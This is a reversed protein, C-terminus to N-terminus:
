LGAARLREVIDAKELCGEISVNQERALAKLEKISRQTLPREDVSAAPASASSAAAAAAGPSGGGNSAASDGESRLEESVLIAGSMCLRALLKEKDNECGSTDVGLREMISRVEGISMADLQSPSFTQAPGAALTKGSEDKLEAEIMEVRPSALIREIIDSKELCGKVDVGIFSALGSLEQASKMDLDPKRMRIKRGEMRSERGREHERDDTPLEFRCVPCANSKKQLWDKICDEHFLHSCPLRIASKGAELTDLCIPCESSNENAVIDYATVKVIPLRRLAAASTTPPGKREPEPAPQGGRSARILEQLVAPDVRGGQSDGFMMQIPDFAPNQGHAGMGGMMAQLFAANFPNAGGGPGGGPPGGFM